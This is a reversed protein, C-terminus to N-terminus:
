TQLLLLPALRMETLEHHMLSNDTLFQRLKTFIRMIQINTQIALKSRLVSSLMAVGQETFTMPTYRSGGRGDTKSTVIQSRLFKLEDDNLEFIYDEPFRDINIRVPKRSSIDFHSDEIIQNLNCARAFQQWM